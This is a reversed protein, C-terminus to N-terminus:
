DGMAILRFAHSVGGVILTMGHVIRPFHSSPGREESANAKKFDQSIAKAKLAVRRTVEFVSFFAAFGVYGGPTRSSSANTSYGSVVYM